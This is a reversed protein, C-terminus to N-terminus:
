YEENRERHVGMQKTPRPLLGLLTGKAPTKREPTPTTETGCGRRWEAGRQEDLNKRQAGWERHKQEKRGKGISMQIKGDETLTFVGKRGKCVRKNV